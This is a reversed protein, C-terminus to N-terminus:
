KMASFDLDNFLKQERFEYSYRALLANPIQLFFDKTTYYRTVM